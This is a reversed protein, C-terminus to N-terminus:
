NARLQLALNADVLLPDQHILQRPPEKGFRRDDDDVVRQLLAPIRPKTPSYGYAMLWLGYPLRDVQASNTPRQRLVNTEPAIARAHEGFTQAFSVPYLNSGHRRHPTETIGARRAATM